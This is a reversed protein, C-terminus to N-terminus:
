GHRSSQIEVSRGEDRMGMGKSGLKGGWVMFIVLWEYLRAKM